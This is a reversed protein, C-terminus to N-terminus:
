SQPKEITAAMESPTVKCHLSVCVPTAARYLELVKNGASYEKSLLFGNRRTNCIGCAQSQYRLRNLNVCMLEPMLKRSVMTSYTVAEANTHQKHQQQGPVREKISTPHPCQVAEPQCSCVLLHQEHCVLVSQRYKWNM